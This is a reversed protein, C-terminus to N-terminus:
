SAFGGSAALAVELPHSFLFCFPPNLYEEELMQLRRKLDMEPRHPDDSGMFGGISTVSVVRHCPILIPLPNNRLAQGVARTATLKGVRHAVWGYTRTEGFPIEAISEYVRSQFETWGSRDIREWPVMGIPAGTVFFDQTRTVLDLIHTPVDGTAQSPMLKLTWDLRSILGDQNWVIELIGVSVQFELRNVTVRDPLTASGENFNLGNTNDTTM